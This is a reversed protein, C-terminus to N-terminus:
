KLKEAVCNKKKKVCIMGPSLKLMERNDIKCYTIFFSLITRPLPNLPNLNACEDGM